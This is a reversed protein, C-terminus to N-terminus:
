PTLGIQQRLPPGLTGERLLTVEGQAYGIVSLKHIHPAEQSSGFLLYDGVGPLTLLFDGADIPGIQAHRLGFFALPGAAQALMRLFHAGPMTVVEGPKRGAIGMLDIGLPGPWFLHIVGRLAEPLDQSPFQEMQGILQYAPDLKLDWSAAAQALPRPAVLSHASSIGTIFGYGTDALAIIAQGQQIRALAPALNEEQPNIFESEFLAM